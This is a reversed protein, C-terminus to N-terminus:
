KSRHSDIVKEYLKEMERGTIDATFDLADQKSNQGLRRRVEDHDLLYIIKDAFDKESQGVLYGDVENRVYDAPGMKNVAVIPLGSMMAEMIIIGQTETISPFVFIDAGGFTKNTEPKDKKGAFTVYESIGWNEVLKQCRTLEDGGGVLLLHTDQRKEVISKMARLLFYINKEKGIRSVYLLLNPQTDPILYKRRLAEKTDPNQFDKRNIGTPIPVIPTTVGYGYLLRAMSPGPTVIYDYQNCYLKSKRIIWKKALGGVLPVYHVYETLLTHYTLIVPINLKKAVKLGLSGSSLLHQCHIIDLKYSAIKEAWKIVSQPRAIPYKGGKPKFPLLVPIPVIRPNDYVTGPVRTTFIFVEHGQKELYEKFTKISVSVGNMVPEYCESFIGIRM